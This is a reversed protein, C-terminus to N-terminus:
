KRDPGFCNTSTCTSYGVLVNSTLSNAFSPNNWVRPEYYVRILQGTSYYYMTQNYLLEFSHLWKSDNKLQCAKIVGGSKNEGELCFYPSGNFQGTHLEKIVVHSIMGETKDGTWEAHAVGSFSLLFCLSIIAKKM